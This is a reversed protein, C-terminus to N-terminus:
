ATSVAERRTPALEPRMVLSLEFPECPQGDADTALRVVPLSPHDPPVSSVTGTRGDTLVIENGPPYPVVVKAFIDVVEPEYLTGRGDLIADVGVHQPAASAYPRESTIADFVDAVAAIRALQPIATAVTGRPYGSGNWREHHSRVVCTALAGIPSGALMDVGIEPHRKMVIWEREDLPGPKHLIEDPVALKGIDHLILGLGLQTLHEESRKWARDGRYDVYGHERFLRRGILLGVVTVDISHQFTFADAARLDGLAIAANEASGLEDVIKAVVSELAYITKDPLADSEHATRRVDAFAKSLARGAEVRTTHRVALPVEIGEGLEDDVYVAHIGADLLLQRYRGSLTVGARLLPVTGESGHEVDRALCTGDPLRSTAVLRM